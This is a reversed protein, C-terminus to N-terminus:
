HYKCRLVYMEHCFVTKMNKMTRPKASVCINEIHSGEEEGGIQTQNQCTEFSVMSGGIWTTNVSNRRICLLLSRRKLGDPTAVEYCLSFLLMATAPMSLKMNLEFLKRIHIWRASVSNKKEPINEQLAPYKILGDHVLLIKSYIIACYKILITEHVQLTDHQKLCTITSPPQGSM